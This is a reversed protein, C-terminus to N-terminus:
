QEVVEGRLRPVLRDVADDVTHDLKLLKSGIVARLPPPQPHGLVAPLREAPAVVVERDLGPSYLHKRAKDRKLVARPELAILLRAAQRREIRQEAAADFLPRAREDEPVPLLRKAM